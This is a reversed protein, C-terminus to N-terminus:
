AHKVAFDSVITKCNRRLVIPFRLTDPQEVTNEDCLYDTIGQLDEPLIHAYCAQTTTVSAHGLVISVKVIPVGALLLQTAFFHRLAHPGFKPIGVREALRSFQLYLANKTAPQIKLWLEKAIKNLPITRQKRGKGTITLTTLEEDVCEPKLNTFESARLGTHALFMLRNRALPPAIELLKNYEEKTLFRTKPPDEKFMRVRTAINPIDYNEHLYKCFSKIATLHANCTRNKLGNDLLRSLYKRVHSVKIQQIWFINENKPLSGVFSNLVMRYHGQTRETFQQAFRFFDDLVQAITRGPVQGKRWLREQKEIEAYFDVAEAKELFVKSGSFIRNHVMKRNTARWRIQWRRRNKIFRMSAM